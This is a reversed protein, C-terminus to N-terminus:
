FKLSVQVGKLGIQTFRETYDPDGLRRALRERVSEPATPEPNLPTSARPSRGLAPTITEHGTSPGSSPSAAKDRAGTSHRFHRPLPFVASYNNM